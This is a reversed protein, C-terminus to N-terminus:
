EAILDELQHRELDLIGAATDFHDCQEIFALINERNVSEMFEVVHDVPKNLVNAAFFKVDGSGIIQKYLLGRKIKDRLGEDIVTTVGGCLQQAQLREVGFREAIKWFYYGKKCASLIQRELIPSLKVMMSDEVINKIIFKAGESVHFNCAPIVSLDEDEAITAKRQLRQLLRTNTGTLKGLNIFSDLDQYNGVFDLVTVATKNPSLRLGRGLQQIIKVPSSTQNFKILAEVDPVDVGEDFIGVSFLVQYKNSKVFGEYAEKRNAKYAASKEKNGKSLLYTASIGNANFFEAMSIACNKNPAFGIAKKGAAHHLYKELVIEQFGPSMCKRQHIRKLQDNAKKEKTKSGLGSKLVKLVEKYDTRDEYLYYDPWSLYGEWIGRNLNKRSVTNENFYAIPDQEDGRFPTATLGLVYDASKKGRGKGKFHDVVAAWRNANVHHAEDAIILDFHNPPIQLLPSDKKVTKQGKDLKVLSADTAFVCPSTLLCDFKDKNAGYFRCYDSDDKFATYTQFKEIAGRLIEKYKTFFLIKLDPKHMTLHNVIRTAIITKGMGTPLVIAGTKEGLNYSSIWADIAEKQPDSLLFCPNGYDDSYAHNCLQPHLFEDGRFLNRFVSFLADRNAKALFEPVITVKGLINPDYIVDKGISIKYQLKPSKIQVSNKHPKCTVMDAIGPHFEMLRQCCLEPWNTTPVEDSVLLSELGVALRYQSFKESGPLKNLARWKRIATKSKGTYSAIQEDNNRGNYKALVDVVEHVKDAFEYDDESKFNSLHYLLMESLVEGTEPDRDHYIWSQIDFSHGNFIYRFTEYHSAVARDMIKGRTIAEADYGAGGARGKQRRLKKSARISLRTQHMKEPYWDWLTDRLVLSTKNGRAAYRFTFFLDLKSFDAPFTDKLWYIDNMGLNGLLDFWAFDYRVLSGFKDTIEDNTIANFHSDHDLVNRQNKFLGRERLMRRYKSEKEVLTWKSKATAVKYHRLLEIDRGTSGPLVLLHKKNKGCAKAVVHRSIEKIPRQDWSFESTDQKGTFQVKKFSVKDLNLDSIPIERLIDSDPNQAYRLQPQRPQRSQRPKSHWKRLNGM